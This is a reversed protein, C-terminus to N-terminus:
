LGVRPKLLASAPSAPDLLQALAADLAPQVAKRSLGVNLQRFAAATVAPAPEAVAAACADSAASPASADAAAGQSGRLPVLQLAPTLAGVIHGLVRAAGDAGGGGLPAAAHPGGPPAPFATSAVLMMERVLEGQSGPRAPVFASALVLLPLARASMFEAAAALLRPERAAMGDLSSLVTSMGYPISAPLPPPAAAAFAKFDVRLAEAACLGEWFAASTKAGHLEAHFAAADSGPPLLRPALLAAMARDVDRAKGAQPSLGATDLLIAGLLATALGADSLLAAQPSRAILDAVM